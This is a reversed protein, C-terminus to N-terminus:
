WYYASQSHPCRRPQSAVLGLQEPSCKECLKGGNRMESIGFVIRVGQRILEVWWSQNFPPARLVCNRRSSPTGRGDGLPLVRVPRRLVM